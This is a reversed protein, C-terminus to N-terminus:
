KKKISEDKMKFANKTMYFLMVLECSESFRDPVLNWQDDLMSFNYM